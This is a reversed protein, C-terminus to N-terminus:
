KEQATGTHPLRVGKKECDMCLDTARNTWYVMGCAPCTVKRLGGMKPPSKPRLEPPLAAFPDQICSCMAPQNDPADDEPALDPNPDAM